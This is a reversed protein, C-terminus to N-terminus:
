YHKCINYAIYYIYINIIYVDIQEKYIYVYLISGFPLLYFIDPRIFSEKDSKEGHGREIGSKKHATGTNYKM